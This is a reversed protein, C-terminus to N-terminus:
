GRRDEGGPGHREALIIASVLKKRVSPVPDVQAKLLQILM